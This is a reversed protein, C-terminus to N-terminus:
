VGAFTIARHPASKIEPIAPTITGKSHHKAGRVMSVTTTCPTVKECGQTEVPVTGNGRTRGKPPMLEGKSQRSIHTDPRCLIKRGTITYSYYTHGLIMALSMKQALPDVAAFAYLVV